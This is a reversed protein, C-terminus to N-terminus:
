TSDDQLGEEPQNRLCIGCKSQVILKERLNSNQELFEGFVTESKGMCYIDAHDFYNLGCELATDIARYAKKRQEADLPASDFSGGIMMCGYILRNSPIEPQRM